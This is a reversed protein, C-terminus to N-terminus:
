GLNWILSGKIFLPSELTDMEANRVMRDDSVVTRNVKSDENLIGGIQKLLTM